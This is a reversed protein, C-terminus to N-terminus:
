PHPSPALLARVEEESLTRGPGSATPEKAPETIVLWMDLTIDLGRFRGAPLHVPHCPGLVSLASAALQRATDQIQKAHKILASNIGSSYKVIGDLEPPVAGDVHTVLVLGYAAAGPALARSKDLDAAVRAVYGALKTASM